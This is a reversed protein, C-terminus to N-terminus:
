VMLGVCGFGCVLLVVFLTFLNCFVLVVFLRWFGCVM